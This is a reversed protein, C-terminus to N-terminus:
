QKGELYEALLRRSVALQDTNRLFLEDANELDGTRGSKELERLPAIMGKVGCVASSGALKHALHDVDAASGGSIAMQLGQLIEDAQELYMDLLERLGEVGIEANEDLLEIDLQSEDYTM